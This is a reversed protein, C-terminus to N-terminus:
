SDHQLVMPMEEPWYGKKEELKAKLTHKIIKNIAETQGNSQPHYVAAFDKKINLDEYLKKLDKSDFQNGNDKGGGSHNGYIGEHVERLIYNGEELDVCRLLPQNFGRKYLVGDYEVYKAAQYRLCRAHLKDEPLAGMRIYNHIHTMWNEQLIEQTQFVGVEPISPIEQIELPIQKLQVSDMQSGMNELADTNRNEERPVGELRASGFRELLRQVCRMYLETRPGLAQFGGNVQNVVLELDSRAILNVVGVELAIKLGNILAEYKTDDNTVYFKFNIASMLHHGEQTVLIIGAGARNNNMGGDVHLIWWPHPFEERVDVPPNGQSSPEALVIAKDDVESDFELIFDALVQGKIVFSIGIYCYLGRDTIFSTHEQDPEHRPIQNYGAYADMFSLLTHGAMADVLQDIIPLPFSDNPCAKNLDTFDICTIWKGNPNKVLVPNALWEPYFSERILGVDLLRDVEEALVVVRERSIARCKQRIGKHKPDINLRHCMVESDIGVMDSHRWAFVDLNALLFISLVERLKQPLEALCQEITKFSEALAFIDELIAPDKGQLHKWFDSGVRLGAIVFSKLAEDSAGRM